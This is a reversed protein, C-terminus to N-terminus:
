GCLGPLRKYDAYAVIWKEDRHVSHLGNTMVGSTKAIFPNTTWVDVEVFDIM